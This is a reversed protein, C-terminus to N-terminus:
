MSKKVAAGEAAKGRETERAKKLAELQARASATGAKQRIKDLKRGIEADGIETSVDAEAQLKDIHDRVNDLAKIDAQMSLGSLSDQIQIRAEANEKKALMQDKERELKEIEAQFTVISAKAAEAEEKAKALEREIESVRRTLDEKRQLLVLAVDDEEADIAVKIQLDLDQVGRQKEELEASLKNRLVIIGSVAKKLDKYQEKRANIAAEYVAEPNSKELNGVFLSLFGKWLNGIRSFFGGEAMDNGKEEAAEV